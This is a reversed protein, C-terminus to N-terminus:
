MGFEVAPPTPARPTPAPEPATEPASEAAGEPAPSPDPELSAPQGYTEEADRPQRAKGLPRVGRSNQRGPTTNRRMREPKRRTTLASHEAHRRQQTGLLTPRVVAKKTSISVTAIAIALALAGVGVVTARKVRQRRVSCHKIPRSRLPPPGPTPEDVEGSSSQGAVGRGLAVTDASWPQEETM